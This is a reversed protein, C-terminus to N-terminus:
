IRVAIRPHINVFVFAKLHHFGPSSLIDHSIYMLALTSM